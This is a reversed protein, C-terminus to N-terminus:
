GFQRRIAAESGRPCLVFAHDGVQFRTNGRPAILHDQRVILMVAADPPLTLDSLSLGIAPSDPGIFLNLQSEGIPRSSSIEVTASPVPPATEQLDLARSLWRVTTGPIFSGVVVVFFVLDFVYLDGALAKTPDALSLVPITALIIPVAGRLGVWAIFVIERWHFRFPLLCVLVVLPRAIFALFLALLLGGFAVGPLNSPFVLLGLVLFMAIQSLWALSDHFRELNIRYPIEANGLVVGSLYVALFGSGGLEAAVGYSIFALGLSLVPYLAATSLQARTLAFRGIFAIGVGLVGGIALQAVMQPLLAWSLAAGGAAAGAAALTLIVAVPDNLGSELEITLGVRRRLPVGDLVAFVAAADTSSVIAGVLLAEPWDLGLWHAGIGALGAVGVVGVTALVAAPALATRILPLPTNLGGSFLIVVLASTGFFYATDYNDFWIGGPGDSGAIMGIILFLLTVPVGLRSGVRSFLCSTVLLLGAIALAASTYPALDNM